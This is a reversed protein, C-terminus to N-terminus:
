PDRHRPGLTRIARGNGGVKLIRRPCTPVPLSLSARAEPAPIDGQSLRSSPDTDRSQPEREVYLGSARGRPGPHGDLNLRGDASRYPATNHDIPHPPRNPTVQGGGSSQCKEGTSGLMRAAHGLSGSQRSLPSMDVLRSISAISALLRLNDGPEGDASTSM